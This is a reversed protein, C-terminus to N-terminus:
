AYPNGYGLSNLLEIELTEMAEAERDKQHDHGLLHLVGHFVLHAWHAEVAKGQVEAEEAVLPACIVIDGLLPIGIGDPLDAPFSLVNTPGDRDRYAANLARSEQRDVLRLTLEADATESLAKRAWATFKAPDPLPRYDTALQLDVEITM